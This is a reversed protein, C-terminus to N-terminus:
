SVSKPERGDHPVLALFVKAAAGSGIQLSGHFYVNGCEKFNDNMEGSNIWDNYFENWRRSLGGQWRERLSKTEDDKIFSHNDERRQRAEPSDHAPWPKLTSTHPPLWLMNLYTPPEAPAAPEATVPEAPEATDPEPTAPEAPEAPLAEPREPPSVPIAVADAPPPTSLRSTPPPTSYQQPLPFEAELTMGAAPTSHRPLAMPPPPPKSPPANTPSPVSQPVTGPPAAWSKAATKPLSKAAAHQQRHRAERLEKVRKVFYHPTTPPLEGRFANEAWAEPLLHVDLCDEANCWTQRCLRAGDKKMTDAIFKEEISVTVESGGTEEAAFSLRRIKESGEYGPTLFATPVM